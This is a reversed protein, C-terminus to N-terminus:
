KPRQSLLYALLDYFEPEPMPDTVNAPMPSLQSLQRQEVEKKPLRTEKDAAEQIVLVEGEERLVLGSIVRGDTTKIMTARFAQDVARNPDLVDELIRELGRHAIGDLEPGVKKGIGAVVHCGSCNKKFVEAGRAVDAKAQGFGARRSDILKKVRDDEPPLDATLKKLREELKPPKAAKLRGDVARDLLLRPPAKGEAVATLLADAGEKSGALAAAIGVAAQQSATKLLDLLSARSENSNLGGLAALARLRVDARDSPDGAIKALGPLARGGDLAALADLAAARVDSPRERNSAIAAIDDFLAKLKLDRAFKLAENALGRDAGELASRVAGRSLEVFAEPLAAGREQVGQQLSQLCALRERVGLKEVGKALEFVSPLTDAAGYRIVHHLQAPNLPKTKLYGLLWKASEPTRAGVSVNAIRDPDADGLSDYVGPALLQNRLAMRCQYVLQADAAPTAAWLALLPRVNAAEPHLGLAEAAARRVWPDVDALRERVLAAEFTWARREGLAKLLHTRVLRDPDGSLKRVIAEDLQSLRELVWLGHAKQFAHAEGALIAKVVDSAGREALQNTARVRVTLTDDKLLEVLAPPTAKVFDPAPRPASGTHVIRWIRGHTKERKPHDLPVEYHGIICTYFDAVYLTGDPALKLDVPRFWPDDCKLFDPQEVAKFTAGATELRDHNIRHTIPNGVFLTDRYEPPFQTAAYYVVGAIGTSGHLHNMLAPGHGLGDHRGDFTPYWGGRLVQYAPKSHCDATFVNGLPDFCLGFPNVQGFSYNELRSGDAKMRWTNGSHMSISQGSACKIESRNAFGHCAYIWGDIWPTFANLMGHTDQFGHDGYIAERSEVVGDADKDAFRWVKPISHAVVAGPVAAVGIPINLGDALTSVKGARGDPAFNELVKIADRPKADPRAAYPYEYSQTVLLRGRDDFALNMPKVIDPESAVLRIEFGPPLRFKKQQEAPSLPPTEVVHGHDQTWGSVSYRREPTLLLLAALALHKTM